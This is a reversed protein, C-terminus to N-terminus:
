TAHHSIYGRIYMGITHLFGVKVPVRGRDLRDSGQDDLDVLCLAERLGEDDETIRRLSENMAQSARIEAEAVPKRHFRLSHSFTEHFFFSPPLLELFSHRPHSSHQAVGSM